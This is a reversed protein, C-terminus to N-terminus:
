SKRFTMRWKIRKDKEEEKTMMWLPYYKGAAWQAIFNDYYKSGPNGNQGGPYVGYAETQPTLSVIMRWSPGHDGKISDRKTANICHSAGGVQLNISSLPAIRAIHRIKIPRYKEWPLNGADEIQKLEASTKKFAATVDDALTEKQPTSVNDLFKYGSDRLIGEILTSEFPYIIPKPANSFEDDFVIGMFNSWLIDFITGGKNGIDYRLNWDNLLAFYKKEEENLENTKISKLFIPRAMEAFVDYNDTQLAMMDEPTINNMASLRRNIIIGRYLPYNRGLYYPYTKDDVPKQNASSIFGREPNYQHPVEEQPIMGQWLYSSDSGDMVYDGQGKWKAPWEGQTRIAIDGNKCAFAGNQGPTHLNVIAASYDTYNKAHDLMNFIRLEDSADHAKWRVAFYRENANKGGSFSKDYMVPCWDMGLQVYAVSDIFDAM